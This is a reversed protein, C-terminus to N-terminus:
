LLGEPLLKWVLNFKFKVKFKKASIIFILTIAYKLFRVHFCLKQLSYEADLHPFHVDWLFNPIAFLDSINWFELNVYTSAQRIHDNYGLQYLPYLTAWYLRQLLIQKVLKTLIQPLINATPAVWNLGAAIYSASVGAGRVFEFNWCSDLLDM